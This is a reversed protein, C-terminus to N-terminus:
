GIGKTTRCIKYDKTLILAQKYVNYSTLSEGYDATELKLWIKYVRRGMIEGMIMTVLKVM